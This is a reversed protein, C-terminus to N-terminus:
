DVLVASGDHMPTEISAQVNFDAHKFYGQKGLFPVLLIALCACAQSRESGM